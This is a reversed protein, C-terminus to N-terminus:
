GRKRVVKFRATAPSGDADGQRDIARVQFTHRGLRAKRALPSACAQFPADDLRCEFGVGKADSEFEFRVRARARRTKVRRKPAKTITTEPEQGSGGSGTGNKTFVAEVKTFRTPTLTCPQDAPTGACAGGWTLESNAAPTGTLVLSTGAEVNEFCDGPCTIGVGTVEGSGTNTAPILVRVRVTERDVAAAPLAGALTALVALVAFPALRPVTM